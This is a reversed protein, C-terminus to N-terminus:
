DDQPVHRGKLPIYITPIPIGHAKHIMARTNGSILHHTIKGTKEDKHVGVITPALKGALAAKSMKDYYARAHKEKKLVGQEWRSHHFRAFAEEHDGKEIGGTSSNDVDDLHKRHVVKAKNYHKAFEHKDKFADPYSKRTYENDQYEGEYEAHAIATKDNPKTAAKKTEAILQRFYM